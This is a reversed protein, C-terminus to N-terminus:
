PRDGKSDAQAIVIFRDKAHLPAFFPDSRIIGTSYGLEQAQELYDLAAEEDGSALAVKAADFRVGAM